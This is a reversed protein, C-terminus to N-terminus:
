ATEQWSLDGSREDSYMGALQYASRHWVKTEEDQLCNYVESRMFESIAKEESWGYDSMLIHVVNTTLTRKIVEFRGSDM